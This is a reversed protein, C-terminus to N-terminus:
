QVLITANGKGTGCDIRMAYPLKKATSITIVKYDYAAIVYKVGDVYINRSVNARNDLMIKTGETFTMYFPVAVCQESFQIRKDKYLKVAATYSLRPATTVEEVTTAPGSDNGEEQTTTTGTQVVVNNQSAYYYWVGGIVIVAIAALAIWQWMKKQDM